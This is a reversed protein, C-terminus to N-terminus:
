RQELECGTQKAKQTEVFGKYEDEEDIGDLVACRAGHQVRLSQDFQKEINDPM